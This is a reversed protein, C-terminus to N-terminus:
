SSEGKTHVEKKLQKRCWLYLKRLDFGYFPERLYGEDMLNKAYHLGFELDMKGYRELGDEEYRGIGSFCDITMLRCLSM